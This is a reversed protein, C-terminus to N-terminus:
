QVTFRLERKLEQGSTKDALAVEMRFAAPLAQNPLLLSKLEIAYLEVQGISKTLPQRFPKWAGESQLYFTYTVELNPRGLSADVAPNYVQYYFALTDDRALVSKARPVLRFSGFIYPPSKPGYEPLETRDIQEFDSLLSITSTNLSGGQFAPVEITRVLSGLTGPVVRDEVVVVIRYTGPHVNRRAQYILADHPRDAAPAPVFPQEGTLNVERAGESIPELRAFPRIASEGSGHAVELPTEVTAVLLTTTGATKFHEIRIDFPVDTPGKGQNLVGKLIPMQRQSEPSLDEVAEEDEAALEFANSAMAPAPLKWGIGRTEPHAKIYNEFQKKDLLFAGTPNSAFRLELRETIGNMESPTFIWFNYRSDQKTESPPGLMLFVRGIDTLCGTRTAVSPTFKQDAQEVRQWFIAEYENEPTGSTPDREAWFKKVFAAREEDTALKKYIKQEEKLLLWKVPGKVWSKDARKYDVDKAAWAVPNLAILFLLPILARRKMM